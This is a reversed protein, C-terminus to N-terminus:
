ELYRALELIFRASIRASRTGFGHASGEALFWLCEGPVALWLLVHYFALPRGLPSNWEYDLTM